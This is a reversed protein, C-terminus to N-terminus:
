PFIAMNQLVLYTEPLVRRTIESEQQCSDLDGGLEDGGIDAFSSKDIQACVITEV